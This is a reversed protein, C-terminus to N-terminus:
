QMCLRVVAAAALLSFLLFTIIQSQRHIRVVYMNGVTKRQRWQRRRGHRQWRNSQQKQKQKCFEICHKKRDRLQTCIHVISIRASDWNCDSMCMIITLMLVVFLYIFLYFSVFIQQQCWILTAWIHLAIRFVDITEACRACLNTTKWREDVRKHKSRKWDVFDNHKMKISKRGEEEEEIYETTSNERRYKRSRGNVRVCARVHVGASCQTRAYAM